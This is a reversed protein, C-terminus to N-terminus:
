CLRSKIDERVLRAATKQSRPVCASKRGVGDGGQGGM